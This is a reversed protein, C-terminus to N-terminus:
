FTGDSMLHGRHIGLFAKKQATHGLYIWVGRLKVFSQLLFQAGVLTLYTTYASFISTDTHQVSCLAPPAPIALVLLVGHPEVCFM